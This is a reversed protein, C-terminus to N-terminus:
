PGRPVGSATPRSTRVASNPRSDCGAARFSFGEDSDPATHPVSRLTWNLRRVSPILILAPIIPLWFTIIRYLFVALLAPALAVGVGHLALAMTAEVGGAGGAPLPLSSIVFGSAYALILPAIGVTGGFARIAAYLTLMDGAWYIPYGIAGGRYRVPHSLIHRVLLVGAISNALGSRLSRTLSRLGRSFRSTSRAPQEVRHRLLRGVRPPSSLWLAGTVCVPVAVLWGLVMGLPARQGTLLITVAASVAYLALVTWEITGVALVRRTAVYRKTGTRRLAWYDVALGGVSAALVAAGMGFVVVKTTTRFSFRPGGSAQAADRYALIYGLYALLQGLLCVPLWLKNARSVSHELTGFRALEGIGAFAGGALLLALVVGLAAKRRNWSFPQESGGASDNEPRM